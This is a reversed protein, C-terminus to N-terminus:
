ACFVNCTAHCTYFYSNKFVTNVSQPLVFYSDNIWKVDNIATLAKIAPIFLSEKLHRNHEDYNKISIAVLETLASSDNNECSMKLVNDLLNEDLPSFLKFTSACEGLYKGDYVWANMQKILENHLNTKLLGSFISPAYPMLTTQNEKLLRFSLEPHKISLSHLFQNFIISIPKDSSNKKAYKLIINKWYDQNDRKIENVYLQIQSERYEFNYKLDWENDSCSKDFVPTNGVLTKYIVYKENSDLQDRFLISNELISNCLPKFDM